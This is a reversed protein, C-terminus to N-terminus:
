KQAIWFSEIEELSRGKTEPIKKWTIWLAPLIMAAFFWFTGHPRLHELMWPVTQGIFFNGGWLALTAISMARGRVQTPYLEALLTWVVPGYSFAFFAIFLALLSLLLLGESQGSFFLWGILAHALFMGICGAILLFRRGLSDIKWIAVLTFLVNVIGIIIQGDLASGVAFGASAFIRPGYYIIANIGSLQSLVALATGLLLAKRVGPSLLQRWSDVEQNLVKKIESTAAVSEQPNMVRDLIRGADTERGRAILWRPSEPIFFLLILFLIGPLAEAGFMARWVERHFILDSLSASDGGYGASLNLLLANSWYAVLIGVTIAFQYLSVMRGRFGPMSIESIYLPSLISAVGVGLGGILRFLILETLNSALMCGLASLLLLAAALILTYKRGFRDALIGAFAVGMVCGLLASSVFWGEMLATMAYQTRVFALTGSIVATDFGFLLGGLTSILCVGILYIKKPM